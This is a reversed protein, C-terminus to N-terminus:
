PTWAWLRKFTANEDPAGVPEVWAHTELEGSEGKRVGIAMQVDHGRRREVIVQVLL